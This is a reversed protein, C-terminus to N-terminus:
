EREEYTAGQLIEEVLQAYSMGNHKAIDPCISLPTMGPHTNVELIYFDDEEDSYIFEVRCLGSTHLLECVHEAIKLAREAAHAPLNAPQIHKALGETYKTEYDNFRNKLVKIELTGISKGNLVAVNIERGNIYKEVLVQDGYEYPYDAFSFDDEEFIVEVGISSGQTLPKVVYPRHIPDVKIGDKKHVLVGSACKINNTLFVERSKAKNFALSSGLVGSHTYPIRMINLLGPVCGDEGYTGHLGNFVADPKLQLLCAGLDAGMDVMTVQYGSEVLSQSIGRCSSFSVEREASMGGALLVIHKKGSTSVPTVISKDRFTTHFKQM